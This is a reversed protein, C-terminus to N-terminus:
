GRAQLLQAARLLGAVTLSDTLVGRAALEVAEALPLRWRQLIETGEPDPEGRALDEVLWLHSVEDTVSNSTHLSGLSTWTRGTLGTEEALERAM